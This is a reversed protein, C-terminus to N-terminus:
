NTIPVFSLFYWKVPVQVWLPQSGSIKFTNASEIEKFKKSHDRSKSICKWRFYSDKKKDSFFFSPFDLSLSKDCYWRLFLRSKQVFPFWFYQFVLYVILNWFSKNQLVNECFYIPNINYGEELWPIRLCSCKTFIQNLFM